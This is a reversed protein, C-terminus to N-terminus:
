LREPTVVRFGGWTEAYARLKAGEGEQRELGAAPVGFLGAVLLAHLSSALCLRAHAIAACIDRVHLSDLIHIPVKLRGALRRYVALDDHWPAAGARFALVPLGIRGFAAALAGLTRDDGFSAACQMAVYDATVPRIDAAQDALWPGLATAPDPGLGVALGLAALAKQTRNDRVTAADAAGMAATAACAFGEDRRALGVGGVARFEVRSGAPLDGKRVVYPVHSDTGLFKAAWARRSPPDADLRGVVRSAEEPDLLMVAAEWADTDLIEGGVHLLEIPADGCRQRWGALVNGLREVPFGGLASYDAARLGAFLCPRPAARLAAARGLLFDGFNHRDFAGYLVIPCSSM